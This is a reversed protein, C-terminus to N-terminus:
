RKELCKEIKKQKLFAQKDRFIQTDKVTHTVTDPEVGGM